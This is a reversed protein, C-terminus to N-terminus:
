FAETYCLDCAISSALRCLTSFVAPQVDSPANVDLIIFFFTLLFRILLCALPMFSCNLLPICVGGFVKLIENHPLATTVLM